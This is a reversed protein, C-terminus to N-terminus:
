DRRVLAYAELLERREPGFTHTVHDWNEKDLLVPEHEEDRPAILVYERDGVHAHARLHHTEDWRLVCQPAGVM